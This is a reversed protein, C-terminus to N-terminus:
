EQRASQEEASRLTLMAIEPPVRFRVPMISTGVGGTVFLRKEDEEVLGYAYRSGFQSPVVLRGLLPLNVQGGHTHGGLTLSAREPVQPFIDPNHTLVIAPDDAPIAELAAAVRESRTWLDPIGSLWFSKGRYSVALHRAELVAVGNSEMARRIREGDFWWDHNGLVAAVGLPAELKGLELAIPEPDVFRGGLVGEIVFDGLIVVLDPRESNVGAVVTRLRDLSMYPAGVHLDSLVALKLGSHEPHWPHIDLTRHVIRLTSPEWWFSWVALTLALAIAARLAWRFRRHGTSRFPM